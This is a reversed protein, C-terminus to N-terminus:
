KNSNKPFLHPFKRLAQMVKHVTPTDYVSVENSHRAIHRLQMESPKRASLDYISKM